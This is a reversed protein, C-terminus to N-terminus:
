DILNEKLESKVSQKTADVAATVRTAAHKLSQQTDRSLTSLADKTNAAMDSIEDQATRAGRSIRGRLISGSEPAMLLAAGAGLVVGAIFVFTNVWGSDDSYDQHDM